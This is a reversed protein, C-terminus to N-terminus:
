FESWGVFDNAQRDVFQRFFAMSVNMDLLGENMWYRWEQMSVRYPVSNSWDQNFPTRTVTAALIKVNPKIEIASIYVKRLLDTVQDRSVADYPFSM